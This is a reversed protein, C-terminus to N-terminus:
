VREFMGSDAWVMSVRPTHLHVPTPPTAESWVDDLGMPRLSPPLEIVGRHEMEVLTSDFQPLEMEENNDDVSCKLHHMKTYKHGAATKTVIGQTPASLCLCCTGAAGFLARGSTSQGSSGRSRQKHVIILVVGAVVAVGLLAIFTFAGNSFMRTDETATSSNSDLLSSREHQAEPTIDYSYVYQSSVLLALTCFYSRASCIM